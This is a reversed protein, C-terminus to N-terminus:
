SCNSCNIMALKACCTLKSFYSVMLFFTVTCPMSLFSCRFSCLVDALTSWLSLSLPLSLSLFPSLALSLSLRLVLSFLLLFLSLSPPPVLLLFLSLSLSLAYAPTPKIKLVQPLRTASTQWDEGGVRGISAFEIGCKEAAEPTRPCPKLKALKSAYRFSALGLAGGKLTTSIAM